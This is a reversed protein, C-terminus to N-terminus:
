PVTKKPVTHKRHITPVAPQVIPEQKSSDGCPWDHINFEHNQAILEEMYLAREDEPEDGWVTTNPALPILATVSLQPDVEVLLFDNINVSKHLPLHPVQLELLTTSYHPSPIKTALLPIAQFAVLQLALPFGQLRYTTQQLLKVLTQVPEDEDLPPKMCTITKLYSERGWPFNLFAEVNDVMQVYQLTPRPVQKHAILVGDVIMILALRLRKDSRMNEETKLM